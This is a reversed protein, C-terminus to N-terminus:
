SRRGASHGPRSDSRDAPPAEFRGPVPLYRQLFHRIVEDTRAPDPDASHGDNICFTDVGRSRALRNLKGVGEPTSPDIYEYRIPGPVAAGVAYAYNLYFSGAAAVDATTRFRARRTAAFAEPFEAELETIVSKRTAVAAHFFKSFTIVRHRQQLLRRANKAATTSAVEGTAPPELDITSRSRFLKGIGDPHFFLEPTVPRGIIMDDNLYLYHEALGPIRHLCAEIAHSNFSPLGDGDPWLDAHSVVSIWPDDPRLWAPRQGSTVIWIHNIWPAYQEISRLSYRLEGHDAYRAPDLSRETLQTPDSGDSAATKTALWAPDTGDVWTYVLDIPFDVVHIPRGALAPPIAGPEGLDAPRLRDVIENHVLSTLTGDDDERWFHLEVRHDDGAGFTSGPVAVCEWLALGRIAAPSRRAAPRSVRGTGAGSHRLPEAYWSPGLAGMSRLVGLRDRERVGFTPRRDPRVPLRWYAIGHDDLLARLRSEVAAAHDALRLTPDTRAIVPLGDITARRYATLAADSKGREMIATRDMILGSKMILEAASLKRRVRRLQPLARRLQDIM